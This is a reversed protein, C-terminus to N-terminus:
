SFTGPDVPDGLDFFALLINAECANANNNYGVRPVLAMASTIYLASMTTLTIIYHLEMTTFNWTLHGPSPLWPTGLM